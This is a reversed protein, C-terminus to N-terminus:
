HLALVTGGPRGSNITTNRVSAIDFGDYFGGRFRARNRAVTNSDCQVYFCQDYGDFSGGSFREDGAAGLCTGALLAAWAMAGNMSLFVRRKMYKGEDNSSGPWM